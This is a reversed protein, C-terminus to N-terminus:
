ILQKRLLDALETIPLHQGIPATKRQHVQWLSPIKGKFVKKLESSKQVEPIQAPTVKAELFIHKGHPLEILFDIEEKDKTRWYYIKLGARHNLEIASRQINERTHP